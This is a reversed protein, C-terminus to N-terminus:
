PGDKFVSTKDYAEARVIGDEVAESIAIGLGGPSYHTEAPVKRRAQTDERSSPTVESGYARLLAKRFPKQEYSVKVMYVKCDLGFM